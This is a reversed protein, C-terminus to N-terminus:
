LLGLRKADAHDWGVAELVSKLTKRALTDSGDTYGTDSKGLNHHIPDHIPDPRSKAM